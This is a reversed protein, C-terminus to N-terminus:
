SVVLPSFSIMAKVRMDNAIGSFHNHIYERSQSMRNIQNNSQSTSEPALWNDIRFVM